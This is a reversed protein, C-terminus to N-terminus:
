GSEAVATHGKRIQKNLQIRQDETLSDVIIARRAEVEERKTQARILTEAPPLLVQQIYDIRNSMLHLLDDRAAPPIAFEDCLKDAFLLAYQANTLTKQVPSGGEIVTATVTADPTALADKFNLSIKVPKTGPGLYPLESVASANTNLFLTGNLLDIGMLEEASMDGTRHFFLTSRVATKKLIGLERNLIEGGSEDVNYKSAKLAVLATELSDYPKFFKPDTGM